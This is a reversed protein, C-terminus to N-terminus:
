LKVVILNKIALKKKLPYTGEEVLKNRNSFLQINCFKLLM